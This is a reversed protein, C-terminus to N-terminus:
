TINYVLLNRLSIKDNLCLSLCSVTKWRKSQQSFILALLVYTCTEIHMTRLPTGTGGGKLAGVEQGLTGGRKLIKTEGGRM